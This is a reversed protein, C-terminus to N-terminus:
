GTIFRCPRSASWEVEIVSVVAILSFLILVMSKRGNLTTRFLKSLKVIKLSIPDLIICFRNNIGFTQMIGIQRRIFIM